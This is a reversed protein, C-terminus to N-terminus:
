KRHSKGSVAILGGIGGSIVMLLLRLFVRGGIGGESMVIGSILFLLFLVVGAISGCLLGRQKTLKATIFGAFFSSIVTVAIMFAPLFDHPINEASIFAFAFVALLAACILAGAVVGIMVARLLALATKQGAVHYGKM